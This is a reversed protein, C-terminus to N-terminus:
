RKWVGSRRDFPDSPYLNGAACGACSFMNLLREAPARFVQPPSKPGGPSQLTIEPCAARIDTAM